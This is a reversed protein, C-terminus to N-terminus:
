LMYDTQQIIFINNTIQKLLLLKRPKNYHHKVWVTELNTKIKEVKKKGFQKLSYLNQNKLTNATM